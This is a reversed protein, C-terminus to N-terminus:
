PQSSLMRAAGGRTLPMRVPLLPWPVFAFLVAATMAASIQRFRASNSGPRIAPGSAVRAVSPKLPPLARQQHDPAHGADIDYGSPGGQSQHFDDHRLHGGM